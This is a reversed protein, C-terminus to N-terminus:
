IPIAKKTLSADAAEWSNYYSNYRYVLDSGEVDFYLLFKKEKPITIYMYNRPFIGMATNPIAPLFDPVLASLTPPFQHHDLEYQNIAELIPAAKRASYKTQLELTIGGLITSGVMSGALAFFQFRLDRLVRYPSFASTLGIALAGIGLLFILVNFYEFRMTMEVDLLSFLFLSSVILFAYYWKRGKYQPYM